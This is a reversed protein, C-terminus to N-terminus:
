LIQATEAGVHGMQVGKRILYHGNVGTVGAQLYALFTLLVITATNKALPGLRPLTWLRGVGVALQKDLSRTIVVTQVLACTWFSLPPLRLLMLHVAVACYKTLQFLTNM